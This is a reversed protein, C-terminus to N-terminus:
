AHPFGDLVGLEALLLPGAQSVSGAGLTLIMDGPRADAALREVADGVSPAFAVRKGSGQRVADALAEGTVGPIPLESAAYIDLM